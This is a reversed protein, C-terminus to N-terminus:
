TSRHEQARKADPGRPTRRVRLSKLESALDRTTAHNSLYQIFETASM